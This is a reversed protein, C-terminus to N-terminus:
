LSGPVHGCTFAKSCDGTYLGDTAGPVCGHLVNRCGLVNGVADLVQGTEHCPGWAGDPQCTKYGTLSCIVLTECDEDCAITIGPICSCPPEGADPKGADSTGGDVHEGPWDCLLTEGECPGWTGIEREGVCQQVGDKCHGVHRMNPPGSWCAVSPTGPTCACGPVKLSLDDSCVAANPAVQFGTMGGASTANSDGGSAASGVLPAEGGSGQASVLPDSHSAPSSASCSSLALAVVGCLVRGATRTTLPRRQPHAADRGFLITRPSDM